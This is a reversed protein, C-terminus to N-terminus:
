VFFTDIKNKFDNLDNFWESDKYKDLSQTIDKKLVGSKLESKTITWVDGSISFDIIGSARTAVFFGLLYDTRVTASSSPAIDVLKFPRKKAFAKTIAYLGITGTHSSHDIFYSVIKPTLHIEEENEEVKLTDTSINAKQADIKSGIDTLMIPITEYQDKLQKILANLQDSNKKIESSTIKIEKNSNDLTFITNSFSNNSYISYIIALVALILSILTAAFSVYNYLQTDAAYRFTLLSVVILTLILISYRYHVTSNNEM